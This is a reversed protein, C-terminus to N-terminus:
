PWSCLGCVRGRSEALIDGVFAVTAILIILPAPDPLFILWLLPLIGAFNTGVM